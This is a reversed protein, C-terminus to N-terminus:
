NLYIKIDSKERQNKFWKNVYEGTKQKILENKISAIKGDNLSDFSEKIIKINKVYVISNKREILYKNDLVSEAINKLEEASFDGTGKKVSASEVKSFTKNKIDKMAIEKAKNFKYEKELENKIKKFKKIYSDNNDEVKILYAINEGWVFDIINGKDSKYIKKILDTKEENDNIRLFDFNERTIGNKVMKKLNYKKVLSNDFGEKKVKKKLNSVIDDLNERSKALKLDRKVEHSAENYSPIYGNRRNVLRMLIFGDDIKVPKSIDTYELGFATSLVNQKRGIGPIYTNRSFEFFGTPYTKLNLENAKKQFNEVGSIEFEEYYKKIRKEALDFAKQEKIKERITSVVEPSNLKKIYNEQISEPSILYLRDHTIVTKMENTSTNYFSGATQIDKIIDNMFEKKTLYGTQEKQMDHEKAINNFSGNQAVMDDIQEKKEKLIAIAKQKKVKEEISNYVSEDNKYDAYHKDNKDILKIIHYGFRSEVINSIEGIDLDEFVIKDFEKVMEGRTFYGLDGGKVKTPGESYKRALKEFDEGEKLRRLVDKAQARKEKNKTENENTRFIIHKARAQAKIKFDEKNRQYYEKVEKETVDIDDLYRESNIYSLDFRIRKGTEFEDRHNTYYNRIDQNSVSVRDLYDSINVKVYQIKVEEEKQYKKKNSDYYAQAEKDSVDYNRLLQYPNVVVYSIDVKQPVRYKEKKVKYYEKLNSETAEVKSYYEDIESTAYDFSIKKNKNLYYDKIEKDSVSVRNRLNSVMKNVMIQERINKEYKALSNEPVKNIWENWKKENFTGNEQFYPNQQIVNKIEDVSVYLGIEAAKQILLEKNILENLVQSKIRNGLNERMKSNVYGMYKEYMEIQKKYLQNYSYSFDEYSIKEGNVEAVNKQQSGPAGGGGVGFFVFASGVIVVTVWLIAKQKSRLTNLM